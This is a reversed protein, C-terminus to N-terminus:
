LAAYIFNVYYQLDFISSAKKSLQGSLVYFSFITIFEGDEKPFISNSLRHRGTDLSSM